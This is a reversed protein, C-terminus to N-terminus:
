WVLPKEFLLYKFEQWQKDSVSAIKEKLIYLHSPKGLHNIQVYSRRLRDMILGEPFFNQGLNSNLGSDHVLIFEPPNKFFVKEIEDRYELILYQWHYSELPRVALDTGSVWFVLMDNPIALVRDGPKKVAKIGLGYKVSDSYNIHHETALNNSINFLVRGFFNFGVAVSIFLLGIIYLFSRLYPTKKVEKILFVLSVIPVVFFSGLWPLMHFNGYVVTAMRNNSLAVTILIIIWRVFKKTRIFILTLLSYTVLFFWVAVEINNPKTHLTTFPVFFIQLQGKLGRVRTITPLLYQYNYIIAEKIYDYLPVFLFMALSMLIVPALQWIILLRKKRNLFLLLVNMIFLSPWLPLLSFAAIFTSASFLFIEFPKLPKDFLVKKVVIGFCLVLPYVALPDSLVKNGLMWYKCIEFILTFFIMFPGFIYILLLNWFYSYLFIMERHRGIFVYLTNPSFVKQVFASFFYVSPQHNVSFDKYLKYGKLLLYGGAMHSDEDGFRFSQSYNHAVRWLQFSYLIFLVILLIFLNKKTLLSTKKILM